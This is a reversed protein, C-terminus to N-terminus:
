EAIQARWQGACGSPAARWSGSAVRGRAKGNIRVVTENVSINLRIAGSPAIEGSGEAGFASFRITGDSVQVPITQTPCTDDEAIINVSWVGDFDKASAEVSASAFLACAVAFFTPTRRAFSLKMM